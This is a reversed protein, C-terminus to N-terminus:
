VANIMEFSNLVIDHYEWLMCIIKSPLHVKQSPVDDKEYRESQAMNDLLCIPSPVFSINKM